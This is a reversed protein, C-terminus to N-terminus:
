KNHKNLHELLRTSVLNPLERHLFHGCDPLFELEVGASFQARGMAHQYFNSSMCGDNEGALYLSPALVPQNIAQQSKRWAKSALNLQCRYYDLTAKAVNPQRFTAKAAELDADSFQWDPSWDRWLREVFAYDNKAFRKDAFGRLQFFLMYWSYRIQQPYRALAPLFGQIPPIALCSYSKLEAQTAVLNGIAGGWDHGILHVPEDSCQPLWELVDNAMDTLFYEDSNVVSATEYGRLAPAIVRYGAQSLLPALETFSHLNDPFGHLCVVTGKAKGSASEHPPYELASSNFQRSRLQIFNSTTAM